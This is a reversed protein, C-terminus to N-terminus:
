LNGESVHTGPTGAATVLWSKPQGVVPTEERLKDGIAWALTTAIGRTLMDRKGGIMTGLYIGAGYFPAFNAQVNHAYLRTTGSNVFDATVSNTIIGDTLMADNSLTLNIGNVAGTIRFSSMSFNVASTAKMATNKARFSIYDSLNWTKCEGTVQFDQNCDFCAIGRLNVGTPDAKFNMGIGCNELIVGSADFDSCPGNWDVGALLGGLWIDRFRAGNTTSFKFGTSESNTGFNAGIVKLTSFYKAPGNSLSLDFVPNSPTGPMPAVQTANPTGMVLYSVAPDFVINQARYRKPGAILIGGGQSSIKDAAKQWAGSDNASFDGVANYPADDLRVAANRTIDLSYLLDRVAQHSVPRQAWELARSEALWDATTWVKEAM